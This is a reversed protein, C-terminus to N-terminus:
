AIVRRTNSSGASPAPRAIARGCIATVPACNLGVLDRQEVLVELGRLSLEAVNEFRETIIDTQIFNEVDQDFLTFALRRQGATLDVGAEVSDAKEFVLDPNGQGPDYLQSVSPIRVKHSASARLRVGALVDVYGALGYGPAGATSDDDRVLAHYGVRAVLGSRGWPEVAYELASSIVEIARDQSLLREAFRLSPVRQVRNNGLGTRRRWGRRWQM